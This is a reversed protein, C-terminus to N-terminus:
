SIRSALAKYEPHKTANPVTRKLKERRNLLSRVSPYDDVSASQEQTLLRPRRRDILCSMTCAARMLAAQPQIGRVVAQTDVTIRRSLYHKLFTTISAHGMILNQM